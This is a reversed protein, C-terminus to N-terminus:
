LEEKVEKIDQILCEMGIYGGAVEACRDIISNGWMRLIDQTSLLSNSDNTTLMKTIQEITKM